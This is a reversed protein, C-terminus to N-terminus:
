YAARSHYITTRIIVIMTIIITLIMM